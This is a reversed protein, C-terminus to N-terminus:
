QFKLVIPSIGQRYHTVIFITEYNVLLLHM